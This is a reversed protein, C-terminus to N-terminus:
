PTGCARAITVPGPCGVIVDSVPECMLEDHVAAARVPDGHAPAGVPARRVPAQAAALVPHDTQAGAARLVDREHELDVGRV